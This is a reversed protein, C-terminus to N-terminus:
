LRFTSTVDAEIEPTTEAEMSQCRLRTAQAQPMTIHNYNLLIDCLDSNQVRAAERLAVGPIAPTVWGWQKLFDAQMENLTM